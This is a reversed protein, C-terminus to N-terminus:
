ENGQELKDAYAEIASVTVGYIKTGYKDTAGTNVGLKYTMERIGEAKIQNPSAGFVEVYFAIREELGAIKAQLREEVVQYDKNEQQWFEVEAIHDDYLVVTETRNPALLDDAYYRQIDSM